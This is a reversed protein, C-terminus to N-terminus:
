WSFPQAGPKSWTSDALLESGWTETKRIVVMVQKRNVSLLSVQNWAQVAVNRLSCTKWAKLSYIETERHLFHLMSPILLDMWYVVSSIVQSTVCSSLIDTDGKWMKNQIIKISVGPSHTHGPIYLSFPIQLLLKKGVFSLNRYIRIQMRMRKWKKLKGM